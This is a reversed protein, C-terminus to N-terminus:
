RKIRPSCGRGTAGGEGGVEELNINGDDRAGGAVGVISIAGDGGGHEASSEGLAALVRALTVAAAGDDVGGRADLETNDRPTLATRCSTSGTDVGVKALRGHSAENGAVQLYRRPIISAPYKTCPSLPSL